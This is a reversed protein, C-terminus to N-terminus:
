RIKQQDETYIKFSNYFKESSVACFNYACAENRSKLKKHNLKRLIAELDTYYVLPVRITKSLNNFKINEFESPLIPIATEHQLYHDCLEQHQKFFKKM